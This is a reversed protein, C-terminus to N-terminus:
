TKVGQKRETEPGHAGEQINILKQSVKIDEKSLRIIKGEERKINPDKQNADKM